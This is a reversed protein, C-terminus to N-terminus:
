IIIPLFLVKAKSHPYAGDSFFRQMFGSWNPRPKTEDGLVWGAHWLLNCSVELPLTYPVQLECIPKLTVTSLGRKLPSTYLIIPIGQHKVLENLKMRKQRKIVRSNMPLTTKGKLNSVTTISGHFTGHGDLTAVNHNINVAM